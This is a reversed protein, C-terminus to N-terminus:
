YQRFLVLLTGFLVFLSSSLANSGSTGECETPKPDTIYKCLVGRFNTQAQKQDNADFVNNFVITPVSTLKPLLMQTKNGQAALLDEGRTSNACNMINNKEEPSINEACKEVPFVAGRNDLMTKLLCNLYSLRERKSTMVDLACAHVKNGYCEREGHHCEFIWSGNEAKKHTSKGYPVLTLDVNTSLNVIEMTPYLQNNYFRISDPCLSEYYVTVPVPSGAETPSSVSAVLCVTAILLYMAVRQQQEAAVLSNPSALPRRPSTLRPISDM